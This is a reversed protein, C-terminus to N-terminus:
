RRYKATYEAANDKADRVELKFEHTGPAGTTEDFTHWIRASKQDYEMLVWRNDIYGNYSAIGSLNDSIKLEITRNKSMLKNPLLNVSTITPVKTDTTIYYQGFERSQATLFNGDWRSKLATTKGVNNKFVLLAYDYLEFPLTTPKIGIDFYSHVPTTNQHVEHIASYVDTQTVTKMEYRFDIDNYLCGSPMSLKFFDNNYTNDSFCSFRANYPTAATTPLPLTPDYQLMFSLTSINNNIDNVEIVIKHLLGDSLDVIGNQLAQQYIALKNGPEVFCKQIYGKEQKKLLYDIHANIYRSEAFGIQEMEFAYLLRGNDYMKLGFINYTNYVESKRDQTKIGLGVRPNNVKLMNQTLSYVGNTLKTAYLAPTQHNTTEGDFNYLALQSVTPKIDDPVQYGFLLPNIAVETYTDRIEFHLHPGNSSGTNGSKAVLQGRTVPLLQPPVSEDIEFKQLEYQKRKVYDGIEGSFSNIHAFVSTFGNPYDIYLANGYGRPSVAVRSVYGDALAYINLNEQGDTKCDIGTHFHNNRLEGFNGTLRMPIDMPQGFYGQPYERKTLQAKREANATKIYPVTLLILSVAINFFLFILKNM